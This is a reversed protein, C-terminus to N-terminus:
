WGVVKLQDITLATCYSDWTTEAGAAIEQLTAQQQPTLQYPSQRYFPLNLKDLAFRADSQPTFPAPRHSNYFDIYGRTTTCNNSTELM